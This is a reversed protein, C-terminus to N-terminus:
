LGYLALEVRSIQGRFQAPPAIKEPAQVAPWLTLLRDIEAAAEKTRAPNQRKLSEEARSFADKVSLAAGYSHQYEVTDVTGDVVLGASLGACVGLMQRLLAADAPGQKASIAALAADLAAGAGPKGDMLSDSAAKIKAIDLDGFDAAAPQYVELVGQGILAGAEPGHGADLEKRAVLLFGKLHQLRLQTRAAPSLRDYVQAAGAEGSEGGGAAAAPPPPPSAPPPAAAGSEGAEGAEGATAATPQDKGQGVPGCAILGAVLAAQGVGRWLRSKMEIM